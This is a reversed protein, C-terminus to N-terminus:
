GQCFHLELYAEMFKWLQQMAKGVVVFQNGEGQICCVLRFQYKVVANKVVCKRDCNGGVFDFQPVDSDLDRRVSNRENIEYVGKIVFAHLIAAVQERTEIFVPVHEYFAHATGGYVNELVNIAVYSVNAVHFLEPLSFDLPIEQRFPAM